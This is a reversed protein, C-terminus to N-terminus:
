HLFHSLLPKIHTHQCCRVMHKGDARHQIKQEHLVTGDREVFRIYRLQRMRFTCFMVHYNSLRM